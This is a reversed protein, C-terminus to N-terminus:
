VSVKARVKVAQITAKAVCYEKCMDITHRVGMWRPDQLVHTFQSCAGAAQTLGAVLENLIRTEPKKKM